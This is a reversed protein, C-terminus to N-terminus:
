KTATTVVKKATPKKLVASQSIDGKRDRLERTKKKLIDIQKTAKKKVDKMTAVVKKRNKEDTLTMAAAGIAAGVAAAGLATGM